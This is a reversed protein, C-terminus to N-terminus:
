AKESIPDFDFYVYEGQSPLDPSVGDHKVKLKSVCFRHKINLFAQISRHFEKRDPPFLREGSVSHSIIDAKIGIDQLIIEIKEKRHQKSLQGSSQIVIEPPDSDDFCIFWYRSEDYLTPNEYWLDGLKVFQPVKSM